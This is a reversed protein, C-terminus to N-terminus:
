QDETPVTRRPLRLKLLGVLFPKIARRKKKILVERKYSRRSKRRNANCITLYIFPLIPDERRKKDSRIMQALAFLALIRRPKMLPLLRLFYHNSVPRLKRDLIGFYNDVEWRRNCQGDVEVFDMREEPLNTVYGNHITLLAGSSNGELVLDGEKSTLLTDTLAGFDLLKPEYKETRHRVIGYNKLMVIDATRISEFVFCIEEYERYHYRTPIQLKRFPKVTIKVKPPTLSVRIAKFPEIPMDVDELEAEPRDERWFIHKLIVTFPSKSQIVMEDGDRNLVLGRERKSEDDTEMELEWENRYDVDLLEIFKNTYDKLVGVYEKGANEDKDKDKDKDKDEDEDEDEDEDDGGVVRVVVKTGILKDILSDYAAETAYTIIDQGAAGVESGYERNAGASVTTTFSEKFRSFVLDFAETAVRRMENVINRLRKRLRMGISPHYVRDVEANRQEKEKDTLFDHYRVLAHISTFEANRLLYSIKENGANVKEAVVELGESEVRLRGRHRGKDKKLEITILQGALSKLLKDKKIATMVTSLITLCTVLVMSFAFPHEKLANWIQIWFSETQDLRPESQAAAENLVGAAYWLVIVCTITLIIKRSM